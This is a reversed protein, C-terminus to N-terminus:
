VEQKNLQEEFQKRFLRAKKELDSEEKTSGTTEVVTANLQETKTALKAFRRSQVSETEDAIEEIEDGEDDEAGIIIKLIKMMENGTSATNEIMPIEKMFGNEPTAILTENGDEDIEYIEMGKDLCEFMGDTSIIHIGTNNKKAMYEM